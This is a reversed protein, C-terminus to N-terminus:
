DSYLQIYCTIQIFLNYQIYLYDIYRYCKYIVIYVTYLKYYISIYLQIYQYKVYM